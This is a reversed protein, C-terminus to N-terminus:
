QPPLRELGALGFHQNLTLARTIGRRRALEFATADALSLPVGRYPRIWHDIADVEIDRDIYCVEHTSDAHLADLFDLGAEPGRGRSVLIHMEAAILHTTLLPARDVLLAEYAIRAERHHQERPNLAALGWAMVRWDGKVHTFIVWITPTHDLVERSQDLAREILGQTHHGNHDNGAGPLGTLAGQDSLTRQPM